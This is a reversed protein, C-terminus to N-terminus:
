VIEPLVIEIIAYWYGYQISRAELRLSAKFRHCPRKTLWDQWGEKVNLM